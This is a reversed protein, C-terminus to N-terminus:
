SQRRFQGLAGKREAIWLYVTDYYVGLLAFWTM